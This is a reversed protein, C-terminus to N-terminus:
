HLQFRFLHIKLTLWRSTLYILHHLLVSLQLTVQLPPWQTLYNSHGGFATYKHVPALQVALFQGM